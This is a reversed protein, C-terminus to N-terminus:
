FINLFQNFDTLVGNVFPNGHSVIKKDTTTTTQNMGPLDPTRDGGDSGILINFSHLLFM